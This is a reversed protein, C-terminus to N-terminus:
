PDAEEDLGLVRRAEALAADCSADLRPNVGRCGAVVRRTWDLYEAKRQEPWGAPPKTAIDRVNCIKDAIKLQKAADSSGPAHEVQLQKRARKRLSQDDTVETVLTRVAAGFTEGLEEFTTETDEVTDHLLAAILLSEDTVGGEEALVTAVALPHNIFPSAEADKRRQHRHKEAAFAAARLLRTADTTPPQM